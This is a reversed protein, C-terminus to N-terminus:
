RGKIVGGGPPVEPPLPGDDGPGVKVTSCVCNEVWLGCRIPGTCNKAMATCDASDIPGTCSCEGPWGDAAGCAFGTGGAGIKLAAEDTASVVEPPADSGGCAVTTLVTVLCFPVVHIWNM